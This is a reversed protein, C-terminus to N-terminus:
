ELDGKPVPPAAHAALPRAEPALADFLDQPMMRVTRPKLTLSAPGKAALVLRVPAVADVRGARSLLAGADGPATVVIGDEGATVAAPRHAWLASLAAVVRDPDGSAPQGGDPVPHLPLARAQWLLLAEGSERRGHTWGDLVRRAAHGALVPNANADLELRMWAVFPIAPAGGALDGSLDGPTPAGFPPLSDALACGREAASWLAVRPWWDALAATCASAFAGPEPAAAVMVPATPAPGTLLGRVVAPLFVATALTAAVAVAGIAYARRPVAKRRIFAPGPDAAPAVGVVPPAPRDAGPGEAICAKVERVLAARAKATVGGVAIGALPTIAVIDAIASLFGERDGHLEEAAPVPQVAVPEGEDGKVLTVEGLWHEPGGDEAPLEAALLWLGPGSGKPGDALGRALAVLLSGAGERPLTGDLRAFRDGARLVCGPDGPLLSPGVPSGPLMARLGKPVRRWTVGAALRVGSPHDVLRPGSM